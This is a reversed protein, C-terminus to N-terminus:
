VATDMRPNTHGQVETPASTIDNREHFREIVNAKRCFRKRRDQKVFTVTKVASLGSVISGNAGNTDLTTLRHIKKKTRRGITVIAILHHRQEEGLFSFM